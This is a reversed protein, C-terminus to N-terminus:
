RTSPTSDVSMDRLREAHREWSFGTSQERALEGMKIASSPNDFFSTLIDVIADTQKERVFYGKGPGSLIECVGQGEPIVFTCGQGAAELAPLGFGVDPKIQLFVIAHSYLELLRAESVAGTIEVRDELSLEALKQTFSRRLSNDLWAGAIIFRAKPIRSALEFVYEPDKGQKWATALIAFDGRRTEIHDRVQVGPALFSVKGPDEIIQDL